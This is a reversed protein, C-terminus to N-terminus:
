LLAHTIIHIEKRAKRLGGNSAIKGQTIIAHGPFKRRSLFKLPTGGYRQCRTM